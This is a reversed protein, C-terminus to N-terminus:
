VNEEMYKCGKTKVDSDCNKTGMKFDKIVLIVYVMIAVISFLCSVNFLPPHYILEVRHEGATLEVAMFGMNAEIIEQEKYDIYLKWGNVKPISFYM